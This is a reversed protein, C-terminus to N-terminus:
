KAYKLDRPININSLIHKDKVNIDLIDERYKKLFYDLRNDNKLRTLKRVINLPLFIPHGVKGRYVPRVVSKPNLTIYRIIKRYTVTSVLPHDVPCILYGDYGKMKSLGIRISSFMGRDPQRNVIFFPTKITSFTKRHEPRIIIAQDEMGAKKLRTAIMEWFFIKGMRLFIKPGGIRGGRGAALIIAAM